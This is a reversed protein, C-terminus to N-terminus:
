DRDESRASGPNLLAKEKSRLDDWAGYFEHRAHHLRSKVAELSADTIAAIEKLKYGGFEFLIFATRKKEDITGLIRQSMHMMQSKQGREWLPAGDDGLEPLADIDVGQPRSSRRRIEQLAVNITLRYLWTSFQSKFKFNKLSKILQIFVEQVLDDLEFDSGTFSYLIRYVERNYLRFLEGMAERDGQQYRQILVVAQKDRAIRGARKESDAATTV